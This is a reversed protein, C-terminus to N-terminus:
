LDQAAQPRRVHRRRNHNEPTRGVGCYAVASHEMGGCRSGNAPPPAFNATVPAGGKSEVSVKPKDYKM